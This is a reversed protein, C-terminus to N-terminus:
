DVLKMVVDIGLSLGSFEMYGEGGGCELIVLSNFIGLHYLVIGALAISFKNGPYGIEM